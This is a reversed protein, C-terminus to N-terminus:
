FFGFAGAQVNLLNVFEGRLQQRKVMEDGGFVRQFLRSDVRLQLHQDADQVFQM